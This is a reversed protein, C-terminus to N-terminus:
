VRTSFSRTTMWSAAVAGVFSALLIADLQADVGFQSCLTGCLRLGFMIIVFDVLFAGVVGAIPAVVVSSARLTHRNLILVLASGFLGLLVQLLLPGLHFDFLNLM